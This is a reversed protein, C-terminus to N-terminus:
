AANPAAVRQGVDGLRAAAWRDVSLAGSGKLAITAAMAITLLHYEFGHGAQNGFWNMFLGHELHGMFIAGIMVTGIGVAAFRGAVGLVLALGGLLEAVIVLFVVIAPLGMGETMAQMTADYGFGGFWGLAKQAGHAFMIVGLTVRLATLTWDDRTSLLKELAKM